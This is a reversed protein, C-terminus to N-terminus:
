LIHLIEQHEISMYRELKEAVPPESEGAVQSVVVKFILM